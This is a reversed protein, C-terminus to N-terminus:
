VGGFRQPRYEPMVAAHMGGEHMDGLVARRVHHEATAARHADFATAGVTPCATCCGGHGDRRGCWDFRTCFAIM